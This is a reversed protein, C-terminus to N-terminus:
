GATSTAITHLASSTAISSSSFSNISGFRYFAKNGVRLDVYALTTTGNFISTTAQLAAIDHIVQDLNQNADFVIMGGATLYLERVGDPRTVLAYSPLGRNTVTTIFEALASFSTARMNMYSTGLVFSSTSAVQGYFRFFPPTSSTTSATSTATDGVPKFIFGHADMQDCHTTTLITTPDPFAPTFGPAACWWYTQHRETLTLYLVHNTLTFTVTAIQPFATLIDQKIKGQPYVLENSKSIVLGYAGSLDAAAISHVVANNAATMGSVVVSSISWFPQRWLWAVGYLCGALIILVAGVKSIIVLRRRQVTRSNKLPTKKISLM